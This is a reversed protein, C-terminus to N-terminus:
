LVIWLKRLKGNLSLKSDYKNFVLKDVKYLKSIQFFYIQKQCLLLNVLLRIIHNVWDTFLQWLVGFRLLKKKFWPRIIKNEEVVKLLLPLLLSVSQWRCGIYLRSEWLFDCIIYIKYIGSQQHNWFVWITNLFSGKQLDDKLFHCYRAFM